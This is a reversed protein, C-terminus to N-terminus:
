SLYKASLNVCVIYMDIQIKRIPLATAGRVVILLILIQRHARGIHVVVAFTDAHAHRCRPCIPRRARRRAANADRHSRAGKDVVSAALLTRMHGNTLEKGGKSESQILFFTTYIQYKM